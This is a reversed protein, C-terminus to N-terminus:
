EKSERDARHGTRANGGSGDRKAFWRASSGLSPKAVGNRGPTPGDKSEDFQCVYLRRYLGVACRYHCFTLKRQEDIKTRVVLRCRKLKTLARSYKRAWTLNLRCRSSCANGTIPRRRTIRQKSRPVVRSNFRRRM